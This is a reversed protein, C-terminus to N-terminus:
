WPVFAVAVAAATRHISLSSSGVLAWRKTRVVPLRHVLRWPEEMSACLTVHNIYQWVWRYQTIDFDSDNKVLASSILPTLRSSSLKKVFFQLQPTQASNYCSAHLLGLKFFIIKKLHVPPKNRLAAPGNALDGLDIHRWCPQPLLVHSARSFIAAIWWTGLHFTADEQYLHQFLIENMNKTKMKPM